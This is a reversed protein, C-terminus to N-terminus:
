KIAAPRQPRGPPDPMGEAHWLEWETAYSRMAGLVDYLRDLKSELRTRNDRDAAREEQMQDILAQAQDFPNARKNILAVAIGGLGLGSLAATITTVIGLLTM